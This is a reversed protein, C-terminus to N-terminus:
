QFAGDDPAAVDLGREGAAYMHDAAGPGRLADFMEKELRLAREGLRLGVSGQAQARLTLADELIPALHRTEEAHALLLDEDFQNRVTPREAALLVHRDLRLSRQERLQRARRHLQREAALLRDAQVRLAM